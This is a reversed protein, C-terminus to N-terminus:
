RQAVKSRISKPKSLRALGEIGATLFPILAKYTARYDSANLKYNSLAEIRRNGSFAITMLGAAFAFARVIDNRNADPLVRMLAEIFVTATPNFHEESIKKWRGSPIIHAILNSYSHWGHDGDELFEVYPSVFAEMIDEVTMTIPDLTALRKGREISLAEARRAIVQELLHEKSGFHYNTSALAIGAKGAIDRISVGDFGQEAFLQEASDLILTKTSNKM